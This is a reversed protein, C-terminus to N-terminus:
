FCCCYSLSTLHKNRWTIHFLDNKWSFKRKKKKQPPLICVLRIKVPLLLYQKLIEFKKNITGFFLQQFSSLLSLETWVEVCFIIMSVDRWLLKLSLAAVSEGRKGLPLGKWTVCLLCVNILRPKWIIKRGGSFGM